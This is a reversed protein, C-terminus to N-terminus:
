FHDTVMKEEETKTEVLFEELTVVMILEDFFEWGDGYGYQFYERNKSHIQRIM